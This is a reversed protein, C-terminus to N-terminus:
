QLFADITDSNQIRDIAAEIERADFLRDLPFSRGGLGGKFSVREWQIKDIHHIYKKVLLGRIGARTDMPPSTMAERITDDSIIRHIKDESELCHFLGRDPDINHYSLDLSPLRADDWGVGESDMFTEFLWRKSVWDIRDALQMPDSELADLTSEWNELIWRTEADENSFAKRAPDLYLRQHEVASITKGQSLSIPVRLSPDRSLNRLSEVPSQIAAEKPALGREILQLVIWTTGVKLATAYESMNSDGLILHLRRYLSPDAHPEDRTNLIPRKHM